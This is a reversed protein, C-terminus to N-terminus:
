RRYSSDKEAAGNVGEPEARGIADIPATEADERVGSLGPDVGSRYGDSGRCIPRRGSLDGDYALSFLFTKKERRARIYEMEELRRLHITTQTHGLGLRERVERRTFTVESPAVNAVNGKEAVFSEIRSLVNRTVPPVEDSDLVGALLKTALQVDAATAEIYEIKEGEHEVLKVERQHQHLLAIARVLTLLKVHDRRARTRAASFSLSEAFPNVILIPRLLRQANRHLRVIRERDRRALVGALTERARQVAHVRRTQERGEDVTLVLCRNLLEEDLDIQTTTLMTAVPGTVTYEHTTLKGTIPDKGTSAIRLSGESQLIKLPYSAEAAGEGEAVALVRHRLDREGMYFLSQGTMASYSVREEEPVFALVSEMLSSKGASSSSQVIVALPDDLKRSVAAVYALLKNNEEGVFGVRGFDAVIRELLKPDRLLAVAEDREAESMVPTTAVPALKARIQEDVKSELELLVGGLEMKVTSESLGLELAAAKTFATRQKASYLDLVDVHFGADERSVLVNVRLDGHSTQKEVGRVRWRRGAFAFVIEDANTTTVTPTPRTNTASPTPEVEAPEVPEVNEAVAVTANGKGTWEAQRVLRALDKGALTYDNADLGKPFIVHLTEIGMSNLESGIKEAAADGAKDRRFAVYVKKVGYKAFAARHDDPLDGRGCTATVNRVGTKYFALADILSSTLVVEGGVLGLENFVGSRSEPVHLHLPTGTRLTATIKRGYISRVRVGDVDLIPIVLSGNFHEHGTERLIGLRQLRSRLQEGERRHKEPLRYGLTRNAFGLRFREIMEGDNLGRASLYGLAEPSELLVAHYYNVVNGLLEDNSVDMSVINPLKTTTAKKPPTTQTENSGALLTPSDKRLMECAHRFSVGNSKMVWEIASGGKCADCTWTNAKPVLVLAHREGNEHFPCAGVRKDHDRVLKVGHAEALREVSVERRLRDIEDKPIRAMSRFHVADMEESNLSATITAVFPTAPSTSSRM